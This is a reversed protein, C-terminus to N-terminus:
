RAGVASLQETASGHASGELSEPDACAYVVQADLRDGWTLERVLAEVGENPAIVGINRRAYEAELEPTVMGGGSAAWPGWDVAVTRMGVNRRTLVHALTDLADNAAAYDVQGRSGFVGAISGFLVFYKVTSPLSAALAMAGDVKTSWVREFSAISKEAILRDEVVGAGHAVLDLRGHRRTIEEIVAQVSSADRVDVAHYTVSAALRELQAITARTQRDALIRSSLVDIETTTRL